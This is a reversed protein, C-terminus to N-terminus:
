VPRYPGRRNAKEWFADMDKRLKAMQKVLNAVEAKLSAIESATDVTSAPQVPQTTQLAEDM